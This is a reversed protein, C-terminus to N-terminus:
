GRSLKLFILVALAVAYLAVSAIMFGHASRLLKGRKRNLSELDHTIQMLRWAEGVQAFEVKQSTFATLLAAPNTPPTFVTEVGLARGNLILAGIGVVTMAFTVGVFVAAAATSDRSKLLDLMAPVVVVNTSAVLLAAVTIYRGAKQEHADFNAHVRAFHTRASELLAKAQDDKITAAAQPIDDVGSVSGQVSPFLFDHLRKFM